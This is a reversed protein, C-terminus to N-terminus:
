ERINGGTERDLELKRRNVFKPRSLLDNRKGVRLPFYIFFLFLFCVGGGGFCEGAGIKAMALGTSKNRLRRLFESQCPLWKQDPVKQQGGMQEVM